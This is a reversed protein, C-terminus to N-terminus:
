CQEVRDNHKHGVEKLSSVPFSNTDLGESDVSVVRSLVQPQVQTVYRQDLRTVNRGM